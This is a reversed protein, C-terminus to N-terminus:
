KNVKSLLWNFGHDAGSELLEGLVMIWSGLQWMVMSLYWLVMLGLLPLMWLM